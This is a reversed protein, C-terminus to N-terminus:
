LPTIRRLIELATANEETSVPSVLRLMGFDSKGGFTAIYSVPGNKFLQRIFISGAILPSSNSVSRNNTGNSSPKLQGAWRVVMTRPKFVEVELYNLVSLLGILLTTLLL